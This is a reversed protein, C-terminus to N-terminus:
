LTVTLKTSINCDNLNLEIDGKYVFVNWRDVAEFIWNCVEVVNCVHIAVRVIRCQDCTDCNM